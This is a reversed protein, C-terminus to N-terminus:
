KKSLIEMAKRLIENEAKMKEIEDRLQDLDSEKDKRHKDVLPPEQGQVVVPEVEQHRIQPKLYANDFDSLLGHIDRKIETHDFIYLYDKARSIGVYFLRRDEELSDDDYNKYWDHTHFYYVYDFELGKASHITTLIVKPNKGKHLDVVPDLILNVIFNHLSDYAKLLDGVLKFDNAIEDKTYFESALDEYMSFYFECVMKYLSDKKLKMSLIMKIQELLHRKRGKYASLDELSGEILRRSSKPGIGPILTLIRNFSVVDRKNLTVMMFALVDKIHKRELLRIGGYVTYDINEAILAKEFVTRNKNYRYILAHKKEKNDKIKGLIFAKHMDLSEGSILLSEGGPGKQGKLAKHYGLSSREVTKNVWNIIGEHSRYNKVLKVMKAKDFNNYFNLIIRHDAGRFAYIGQFDDGIAMTNEINLTKIFDLQMQNTDQYEDIMLYKFGGLTKKEGEKKLYKTVLHIMDDYNALLHEAKYTDYAKKYAVINDIDPTLKHLDFGEIYDRISLQTNCCYSLTKQLTKARMKSKFKGFDAMVLKHVSIDDESDLLRFKSIPSGSGIITSIHNSFGHFTGIFGLSANPLHKHIRSKLENGAKRTFTIVVIEKPDVGTKILHMVRFVLTHTKGTGPGAIVLYNGEERTAAIKQMDNLGQIYDLGKFKDELAVVEHDSLANISKHIDLSPTM